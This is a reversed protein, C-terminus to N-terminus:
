SGVESIRRNFGLSAKIIDQSKSRDTRFQHIKDNTPLYRPDNPDNQFYARYRKILDQSPLDMYDELTLMDRGLFSEIKDSYFERILMIWLRKDSNRTEPHLALIYEIKNRLTKLKNKNIDM